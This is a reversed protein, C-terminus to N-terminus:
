DIIEIKEFEKLINKREKEIINVDVWNKIEPYLKGMIKNYENIENNFIQFIKKQFLRKFEDAYDGKAEHGTLPDLIKPIYVINWPATFCYVNKTNGFVHSVQYNFINKNKKYETFEMILQTPKANNTKDFNIEINLIVKYLNIFKDNGTGNRGFSRIYLDNSKNDINSLLLRWLHSASNKDITITNELGFKFFDEKKVYEFFQKYGDLIKEM